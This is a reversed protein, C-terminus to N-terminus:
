RGRKSLNAGPAPTVTTFMIDVLSWLTYVYLLYSFVSKFQYSFECGFDASGFPTPLTFPTCDSIDPLVGLVLSILDDIPGQMPAFESENAYQNAADLIESEVADFDSSVATNIQHNIDSALATTMGHTGECARPDTNPDCPANDNIQELTDGLGNLSDNLTATGSLIAGTQQLALSKNAQHIQHDQNMQDVVSQGVNHQTNNLQTLQNNLDNFGNNLDTGLGTAALNNDRNLNIVAELLATDTDDNPTVDDATGKDYSPNSPTGTGGNGGEFDGDPAPIPNTPDLDDLCDPWNPAGITCGTPLTCKMTLGEPFGIQDGNHCEFSFTGNQAACSQRETSIESLTSDRDCYAVEVCEGTVPDPQQGDPCAPGCQGTAPDPVEGDPCSAMDSYYFLDNGASQSTTVSLYSSAVTVSLIPGKNVENGFVTSILTCGQLTNPEIVDGVSVCTVRNVTNVWGTLKVLASVANFSVASLLLAIMASHQKNM